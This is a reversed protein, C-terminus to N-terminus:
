TLEENYLLEDERDKTPLQQLPPHSVSMRATRAALPNISPHIRGDDDVERMISETYSVRRKDLQKAVLVAHLFDRVRGDTSGKFAERLVKADTKIAGKATRAHLHWGLEALTAAIQAGSNVNACGYGAATARADDATRQFSDNLRSTYRLDVRIARRHLADCAQQVRWDHDYLARNRRVFPRCYQWLRYTLVPDAAAYRIYVEDTPDILGWGEALRAQRTKQQGKKPGSRYVEGPLAVRLQKFRAKLAQEWKGSDWGVYAIAAEKLGHGIGGEAPSRSDMHHLPIFTDAPCTVGTAYGLHRDISRVDHPGNHGIWQIGSTFIADIQDEFRAPLVFSRTADGFQFTRLEWDRAYCNLGTSETDMGWVHRGRAVRGIRSADRRTEAYYFEIPDGAISDYFIRM